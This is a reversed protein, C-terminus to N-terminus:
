MFIPCIPLAGDSRRIFPLSPAADTGTSSRLLPLSSLAASKTFQCSGEPRKAEELMLPPGRVEMPPALGGGGERGEPKNEGPTRRPPPSDCAGATACLLPSAPRNPESRNEAVAAVYRSAALALRHLSLGSPAPSLIPDERAFSEENLNVSANSSKTFPATLLAPLVLRQQQQKKVNTCM